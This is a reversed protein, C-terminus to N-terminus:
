EQEEVASGTTAQCYQQLATLLNRVAQARHSLRNKEEPSMEALTRTEQLPCFVPDYGFGHTGRPATTIYGELTGEGTLFHGNPFAVVVVARFRARRQEPPVDCLVALLKAVNETDTAQRHAFYASFVGPAGGLADVELGSDDALAPLGAAHAVARAKLLANELFTTGTEEPLTIGLAAAPITKITRPLLARLERLKGPNHTALVLQCQTTM